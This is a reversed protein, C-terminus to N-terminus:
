RAGLIRATVLCLIRKESGFHPKTVDAPRPSHQSLVVPVGAGVTVSTQTKMSFFVPKEVSSTGYGITRTTGIEAVEPALNLDITTGDARIVPDAEVITGLPRTEFSSYSVRTRLRATPDVPGVVIQTSSSPAVKAPYIWARSTETKARQGSRTVLYASDFLSAQGAALWEGLTTRLRTADTYADPSEDLLRTASTSDMAFWEFLMGVQLPLPAPPAPLDDFPDVAAGGASDPAPLTASDARVLTLVRRDRAPAEGIAAPPPTHVALISWQGWKTAFGMQDHLSYFVPHNVTAEEKGYTNDGLYVSLETALNMQPLGGDAAAGLDVELTIGVNRTEFNHPTLFSILDADAGIPGTVNAPSNPTGYQVPYIWEIISEAKARQGSRGSLYASEVQRAEGGQVLELVTSRLGEADRWDPAGSLLGNLTRHDLEYYEVRIAVADEGFVPSLLLAFFALSFIPLLAKM